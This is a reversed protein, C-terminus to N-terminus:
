AGPASGAPSFDVRPAERTREEIEFYQRPGFGFTGALLNTPVTQTASQYTLVADNYLQRAVAIKDETDSLDGQLQQFNESARLQPYAEAVAFLQRLASTLANEAEAQQAVGGAQVASARAETVAEFTSREHAAYGRVTEVLNPILDHRRQLQVDVQAWANDVRNRLRVLRNYLAIGYLLLLVVLVVVVVAVWIV